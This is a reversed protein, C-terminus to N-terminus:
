SAEKVEGFSGTLLRVVSGSSDLKCRGTGHKNLKKSLEKLNGEEFGV